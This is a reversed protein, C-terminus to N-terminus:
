WRQSLQLMVFDRGMNPSELGASSIHSYKVGIGNNKRDRLGLYFEENFQPFRGGLMSDPTSIAGFSASNRIEIASFNIELGIGTFVFASSKRDLNQSSDVYFGLKNQLYLGEWIDSRLGTELIKTQTTRQDASSFVGLGYGLFTEDAKAIKGLILSLFLFLTLFISVISLAKIIHSLEEKIRKM